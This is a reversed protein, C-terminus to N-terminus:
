IFYILYSCFCKFAASFLAASNLIIHQMFVIMVASAQFVGSDPRLYVVPLLSILSLSLSLNLQVPRFSGIQCM